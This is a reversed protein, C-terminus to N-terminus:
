SKRPANNTSTRKPMKQKRAKTNTRIRNKNKTAREEPDCGIRIYMGLAFRQNIANNTRTLDFPFATNLDVHKMQTTRDFNSRLTFDLRDTLRILLGAGFGYSGSIGKTIFESYDLSDEEDVGFTEIEENAGAFRVGMDAELYPRFIYFYNFVIRGVFKGDFASNYVGRTGDQNIPDGIFESRSNMGSGGGRIRFGPQFGIKHREFGLYFADINLGYNLGFGNAQLNETPNIIDFDAGVAWKECNSQGFLTNCYFLFVLSFTVTHKLIM